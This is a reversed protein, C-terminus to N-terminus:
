FSRRVCGMPFRLIRYGLAEIFASRRADRQLEEDTSHTAGDIEVVLGQERCLFDAFFPGIPAQRVFKFGGLRRGRLKNWLREEAPTQARRLERARTREHLRLGRM